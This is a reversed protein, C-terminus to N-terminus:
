AARTTSPVPYRSLISRLAADALGFRRRLEAATLRPGPLSPPYFARSLAYTRSVLRLGRGRCRPCSGDPQRRDFARRRAGCFPHACHTWGPTGGESIVGTRIVHSRRSGWLAAILLDRLDRAPATWLQDIHHYWFRRVADRDLDPRTPCFQYFVGRDAHVEFGVLPSRTAEPRQRARPAVAASGSHVRLGQDLAAGLRAPSRLEMSRRAVTGAAVATAGVELEARDEPAFSLPDCERCADRAPDFAARGCYPCLTRDEGRHNLMRVEIWRHLRNWEETSRALARAKQVREDSLFHLDYRSRVGMKDLLPRLDAPAKLAMSLYKSPRRRTFPVVRRRKTKLKGQPM